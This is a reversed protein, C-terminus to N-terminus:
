GTEFIPKLSDVSVKSGPGVALVQSPFPNLQKSQEKTAQKQIEAM